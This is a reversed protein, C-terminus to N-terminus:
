REDYQNLREFDLNKISREDSLDTKPQSLKIAGTEIDVRRLNSLEIDHHITKLALKHHSKIFGTFPLLNLIRARKVARAIQKQQIRSLGTNHRTKITSAATIYKVLLPTNRWHIDLHNVSTM